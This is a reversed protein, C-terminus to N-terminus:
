SSSMGERGERGPKSSEPIKGSLDNDVEARCVGLLVTVAARLVLRRRDALEDDVERFSSPRTKGELGLEPPWLVSVVSLLFVTSSSSLKSIERGGWGIYVSSSISMPEKSAVSCEGLTPVSDRDLCTGPESSSSSIDKVSARAETLLVGDGTGRSGIGSLLPM